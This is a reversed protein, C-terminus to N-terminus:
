AAIHDRPTCQPHSSSPTIVLLSPFLRVPPFLVTLNRTPPNANLYLSSLRFLPRFTMAKKELASSSLSYDLGGVPLRLSTSQFGLFSIFLTNVTGNILSM